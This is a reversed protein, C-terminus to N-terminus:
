PRSQLQGISRILAADEPEGKDLLWDALIAPPPTDMPQNCFLWRMVANLCKEFQEHPMRKKKDPQICNLHKGTANSWANVVCVLPWGDVWFAVPTEYSFWIELPGIEVLSANPDDSGSRTRRYKSLRIRM